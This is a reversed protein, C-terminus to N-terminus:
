KARGSTPPTIGKLRLYVALYGYMENNHAIVNVAVGGKEVAITRLKMGPPAEQNITESLVEKSMLRSMYPECYDFSDKLLKLLATKGPVRSDSSVVKQPNPTDVAYACQEYNHIAIHAIREGFPEMEPTPRFGYDTEPMREALQILHTKSSYFRQHLFESTPLYGKLLNESPKTDQYRVMGVLSVLMGVVLATKM